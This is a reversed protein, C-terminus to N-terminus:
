VKKKENSRELDSFSCEEIRINKDITAFHSARLLIQREISNYDNELAQEKTKHISTQGALAYYESGIKTNSM